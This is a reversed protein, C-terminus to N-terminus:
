FRPKPLPNITDAEWDVRQGLPVRLAELQEDDLLASIAESRGGVYTTMLDIDTGVCWARDASWWLSPPHRHQEEYFESVADLPGELLHMERQAPLVLRPASNLLTQWTAIRAEAAEQAQRVEAKSRGERWLMMVSPVGWGEWAGYLCRGPERTFPALVGALRNALREPLEGTRPEQDWLDDQSALQWSGTLSGWEAAPHMVRGNASAVEAWRVEAECLTAPHFVRAYDEFVAPLVSGFNYDDRADRVAQAVWDSESAAAAARIATM